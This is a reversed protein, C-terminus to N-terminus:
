RHRSTARPKPRNVGILGFIRNRMLDGKSYGSVSNHEPFRGRQTFQLVGRTIPWEAHPERKIV